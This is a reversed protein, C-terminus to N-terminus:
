RGGIRGLWIFITVTTDTKEALRMRSKLPTTTISPGAKTNRTYINMSSTPSLDTKRCHLKLEGCGMKSSTAQLIGVKSRTTQMGDEAEQCLCAQITKLFITMIPESKGRPFSIPFIQSGVVWCIAPTTRMHATQQDNGGSFFANWFAKLGHDLEVKPHTADLNYITGGFQTAMELGLTGSLPFREENGFHLYGSKSHYLAKRVYRSGTPQYNEQWKGDTFWGYAVHGKLGLWPTVQWYDPLEVRVQPVPRSNIGLTM